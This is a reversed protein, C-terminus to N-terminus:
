SQVMLNPFITYVHGCEGCYVIEFRSMGGPAKQDSGQSKINQKGSAQCSPCKPQEAM